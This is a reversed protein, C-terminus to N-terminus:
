WDISNIPIDAIRAHKSKLWRNFKVEIQKKITDETMRHTHTKATISSIEHFSEKIKILTKIASTTHQFLIEGRVVEPIVLEMSVIGEHDSWFKDFEPSVAPGKDKCWLINTDVIVLHGPPQGKLIKRM